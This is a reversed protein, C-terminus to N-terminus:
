PDNRGISWLRLRGHSGASALLGMQRLCYVTRQALRLPLGATAALDVTTFPEPLGPPLLALYDEPARLLRSGVVALLRRDCISWGHRRWSGLGDNRRVEEEQTLLLEISFRPHLALRPFSVLEDFLHLPSGRKPSRRRSAPQGPEEPTKVLWREVAVPHVLRLPHSLLLAELKARIHAFGGTQVEILLGAREIDVQYGDVSVEFSDGQQAYWRKLQAHLSTERLLGIARATTDDGQFLRARLICQRSPAPGRQWNKRLGPAQM